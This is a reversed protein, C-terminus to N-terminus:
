NVAFSVRHLLDLDAAVLGAVHRLDESGGFVSLPQSEENIVVMIIM